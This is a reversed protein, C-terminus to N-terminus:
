EIQESKIWGIESKPPEEDRIRKYADSVHYAWVRRKTRRGNLTFTILYEKMAYNEQNITNVGNEM